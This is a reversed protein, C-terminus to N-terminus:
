FQIEKGLESSDYLAQMIQSTIINNDINSKICEGTKICALFAKIEELYMDDLDTGTKVEPSEQVLKGDKTSYYTFDGCYTYHIGGKDGLFDIFRTDECGTNEAWSGNLDITCKDTRILGTVCEEVDYVGDLKPETWMSEYVYDQLSGTKALKSYCAGSVTKIEKIGMIFNILDLYHVGWDILVGGGSEAKTTFAGGLGPISRRARFSAYIHYVNGLKGSDVYEKIMNVAHNFRCCVGINLIKGTEHAVKQMELAKEYTIAAPKESLVNKGAKLCDIAIPNHLDNHVCVSVAEVSEDSLLDHYDTLCVTDEDGFKEKFAQAREPIIDVAYALKVDPIKKYSPGHSANAINGCGIVAVKIPM